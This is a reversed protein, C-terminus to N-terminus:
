LKNVNVRISMLTSVKIDKDKKFWIKGASINDFIELSKQLHFNVDIPNIQFGAMSM